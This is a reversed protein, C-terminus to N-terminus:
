IIKDNYIIRQNRPIFVRIEDSNYGSILYRDNFIIPSKLLCPNESIFYMFDQTSLFEFHTDNLGLKEWTKKAKKRSSIIDEFGKESLILMKRITAPTIDNSTIVNYSLGHNKLWKEVKVSSSDGRIKKKYLNIM